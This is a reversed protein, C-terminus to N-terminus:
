ANNKLLEEVEKDKETEDPSIKILSIESAPCVSSEHWENNDVRKYQLKRGHALEVLYSLRSSSQPNAIYQCKVNGDAVFTGICGEDAMTELITCCTGTLEPVNKSVIMCIDGRKFKHAM